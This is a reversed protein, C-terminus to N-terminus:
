EPITQLKSTVAKSALDRISRSILANVDRPGGTNYVAYPYKMYAYYVAIAGSRDRVVRSLTVSSAFRGTRNVLAPSTMNQKVQVTLSLKLLNELTTVETDAIARPKLQAKNRKTTVTGTALAELYQDEVMEQLVPQLPGLDPNDGEIANEVIIETNGDSSITTLTPRVMLQNEAQQKIAPSLNLAALKELADQLEM